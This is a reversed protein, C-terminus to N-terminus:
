PAVSAKIFVLHPFHGLNLAQSENPSHAGGLFVQLAKLMLSLGDRVKAKPSPDAEPDFAGMEIHPTVGHGLLIAAM